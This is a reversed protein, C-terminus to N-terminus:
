LNRLVSSRDAGDVGELPVARCRNRGEGKARYLAEDAAPSPRYTAAGVSVTIPLRVALREAVTRRLTEALVMAGIEETDPLLVVFEEGGYRGVVDSSRVSKVLLNALNVLLGDGAPHGFRDNYRKFHDIDLFLLSVPDRVTSVTLQAWVAAGSARLYRKETTFFDIEGALLDRQLDLSRERDDPHTVASFDRRLIEDESLGLLECFARNVRLFRGEPDVLCIGVAAHSCASEFLADSGIATEGSM